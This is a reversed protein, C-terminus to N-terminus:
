TQGNETEKRAQDILLKVVYPETDVMEEDLTQDGAFYRATNALFRSQYIQKFKDQDLPNNPFHHEALPTLVTKDLLHNFLITWDYVSLPSTDLSALQNILKGTIDRVLPQKNKTNPVLVQLTYTGEQTKIYLYIGNNFTEDQYTIILGLGLRTKTFQAPDKHPLFGMVQSMTLIEQHLANDKDDIEVEYGLKSLADLLRKEQTQDM